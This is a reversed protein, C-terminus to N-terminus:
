RATRACAPHVANACCAGGSAARPNKIRVSSGVQLLETCVSESTEGSSTTVFHSSIPNSGNLRPPKRPAIPIEQTRSGPSPLGISWQHPGQGLLIPWRCRCIAKEWCLRQGRGRTRSISGWTQCESTVVHVSDVHACWGPFAREQRKPPHDALRDKLLDARRAGPEVSRM